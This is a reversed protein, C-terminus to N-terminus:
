GVDRSRLITIGQERMRVVAKEFGEASLPRTADEVVFTAFGEAAADMATYFVCYEGALGTVYVERVGRERLYGALGTSRKRGNDYFGSYSDIGPDTGKRVIAEVPRLDLGPTFEAGPSGQVCHDPWLVQELGALTIVEYPSRGPHNSAFSKHTAPHWDQTAVVVDFRGMLRNIVPIVADGEPVPLAGGPVFDNQVDVVILARM